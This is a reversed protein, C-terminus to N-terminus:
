LRIATTYKRHGDDHSDFPSAQGSRLDRIRAPAWAAILLAFFLLVILATM